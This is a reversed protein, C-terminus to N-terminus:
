RETVTALVAIRPPNQPCQRCIDLRDVLDLHEAPNLRHLAQQDLHHTRHALQADAPPHPDLRDVALLQAGLDDPKRIPVRKTQREPRHRPHPEPAPRHELAM